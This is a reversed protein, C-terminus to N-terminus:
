ISVPIQCLIKFNKLPEFHDKARAHHFNWWKFAPWIRLNQAKWDPICEVKQLTGIAQIRLSHLNQLDGPCSWLKQLDDGCTRLTFQNLHHFKWWKVTMGVRAYPLSAIIAFKFCTHGSCLESWRKLSDAIIESKSGFTWNNFLHAVGSQNCM